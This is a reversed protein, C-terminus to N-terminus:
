STAGAVPWQSLRFQDTGLDHALSIAFSLSQGAVTRRGVSAQTCQTDLAVSWPALALPRPHALAFPCLTEAHRKALWRRM